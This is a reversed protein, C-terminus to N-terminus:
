RYERKYEKERGCGGGKEADKRNIQRSDLLKTVRERSDRPM